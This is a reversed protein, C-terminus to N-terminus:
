LLGDAVLKLLGLFYAADRGHCLMKNVLPGYNRVSWRAEFVSIIVVNQENGCVCEGAFSFGGDAFVVDRKHSTGAVDRCVSGTM